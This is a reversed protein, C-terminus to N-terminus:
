SRVKNNRLLTLARAIICRRKKYQSYDKVQMTAASMRMQALAMREQEIRALLGADSLQALEQLENTSKM